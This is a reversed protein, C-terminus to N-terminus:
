GAPALLTRTAMELDPCRMLSEGILFASVGVDHLRALDGPTSLGSESVVVRGPPIKAALFESTSLTTEFTRLDKNNIGILRSRMDLARDLQEEDHVEVLVDLGLSFAVDELEKATPDDVLALTILVCDANWARAQVVQYPDYMFDKRLVPLSTAARAATLHDPSGQFSPVDTLVSLCTAGGVQYARALTPPDFDARILGKSPSAKKLEAILAYQGAGTRREIAALFGRPEPAAVAERQLAALPLTRKAAAVEERKYAEIRTLFDAM